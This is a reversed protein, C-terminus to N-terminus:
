RCIVDPWHVDSRALYSDPDRQWLDRAAISQTLYLKGDHIAWAEPTSPALAGQALTMACYGGYQPALRYPDREFRALNQANAFQWIAGHWGLRFASQGAIAARETFYSVPDFGGIAIGQVAFIPAGGAFGMQPLLPAVLLSSLFYRRNLLLTCGSNRKYRRLHLLAQMM